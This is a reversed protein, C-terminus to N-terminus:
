FSIVNGLYVMVNKHGISHGYIGLTMHTLLTMYGTKMNIQMNFMNGHLKEEASLVLKQQFVFFDVYIIRM